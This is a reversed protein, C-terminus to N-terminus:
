GEYIDKNAYTIKTKKVVNDKYINNDLSEEIIEAKCIDQYEKIINSKYIENSLHKKNKNFNINGM